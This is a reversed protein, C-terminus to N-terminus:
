DRGSLKEAAAIDLRARDFIFHAGREEVVRHRHDDRTRQRIGAVAEFRDV